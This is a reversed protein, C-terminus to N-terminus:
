MESRKNLDEIQKYAQRLEIERAGLVLHTKIRAKFLQPSVPKIICDVAGLELGKANLDSDTDSVLLILPIDRATPNAKLRRCLDFGESETKRLGLLILHPPPSASAAKLAQGDSMATEIGYDSNLLEVLEDLDPQRDDIILIKMSKNM